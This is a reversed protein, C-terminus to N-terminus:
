SGVRGPKKVWSSVRNGNVWMESLRVLHGLIWEKYLVWHYLLHLGWRQSQSCIEHTNKQSKPLSHTPLQPCKLGNTVVIYHRKEEEQKCYYSFITATGIHAHTHTYTTGTPPQQPPPYLPQQTQPLSPACVFSRAKKIEQRAKEAGTPAWMSGVLGLPHRRHLIKCQITDHGGCCRIFM